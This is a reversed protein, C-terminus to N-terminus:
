GHRVVVVPVHAGRLVGEAVSGLFLRELGSRGHTGIVIADAARRKACEIIEYVPEGEAVVTEVTVGAARVREAAADLAQAVGAREEDLAQQTPPAPAHEGAVQIPDVVTCIVLRAEEAKALRLATEFAAQACASGDFALLMTRWNKPSPTARM